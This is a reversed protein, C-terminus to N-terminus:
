IEKCNGNNNCADVSILFKYSNNHKTAHHCTEEIVKSLNIVPCDKKIKTSPM